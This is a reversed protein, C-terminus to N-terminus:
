TLSHSGLIGPTLTVAPQDAASGVQRNPTSNPRLSARSCANTYVFPRNDSWFRFLTSGIANCNVRLRSPPGAVCFSLAEFVPLRVQPHRVIFRARPATPMM